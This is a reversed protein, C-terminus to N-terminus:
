SGHEVPASVVACRFGIFWDRNGAFDGNRVAARLSGAVYFWSGGRVVRGSAKNTTVPDISVSERSGPLADDWYDCCWEWVNGAMDHVGEPTAGRPYKGFVTPKGVKGGFNAHQDTPPEKGWPYVRGEEGGAAYEWMAETPLCVVQNAFWWPPLEENFKGTLWRCYAEAEWWNIGVVPQDPHNFTKNEWWHPKQEPRFYEELGEPFGEQRYWDQFEKPSLNLWSWGEPSWWARTKYGGSEMFVRYERNSVPFRGLLFGHSIQVQRSQKEDGMTFTGPPVWIWDETPLRADRLDTDELQAGTLIAESIDVGRLSVGKLNAGKLNAGKLNVGQLNVGQLNVGNLDIGSLDIEKLDVQTLFALMVDTPRIGVPWQKRRVVDWVFLYEQVSYHAFRFNGDSNKNLLSRGEIVLSPLKRVAPEPLEALEEPSLDRKGTLTMARALALSAQALEEKNLQVGPKEVERTLWAKILVGYIQYANGSVEPAEMLDEIYALMMPRFRLVQMREVVDLAETIKLPTKGLLRGWWPQPFRKDLYARVQENSFLSLYIVHCRFGGLVVRDLRGFTDRDGRPFFQTRCTIIVRLFHQTAKLLADIRKNIQGAGMAEPDEDLSDLLLVTRYAEEVEAVKKLTEPGLKLAVCRYGKPWFALIQGLKIMALFSTKGMGADALVFLHGRGDKFPTAQKLFNSFYQFVPDKVEMQPGDDHRDAPNYQRCDPEIYTRALFVPDVTLESALKDLAAHKEKRHQQFRKSLQGLWAVPLKFDTLNIM